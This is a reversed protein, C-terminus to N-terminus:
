RQRRTSMGSSYRQCNALCGDVFRADVYGVVGFTATSESHYQRDIQLKTTTYWGTRGKITWRYVKENGSEWVLQFPLRVSRCAEQFTMGPWLDHRNIADTIEKPRDAQNKDGAHQPGDKMSLLFQEADAADKDKKITEERAHNLRSIAAIHEASAKAREEATGSERVIRLVRSTEDIAKAAEVYDANKGLAEAIVDEARRKKDQISEFPDEPRAPAPTPDAPKEPSAIPEAAPPKRAAQQPTDYKPPPSLEKGDKPKWTDDFITQGMAPAALVLLLIISRIM